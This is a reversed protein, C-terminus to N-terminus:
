GHTTQCQSSRLLLNELGISPCVRTDGDPHVRGLVKQALHFIQFSGNNETLRKTCLYVIAVHTPDPTPTAPMAMQWQWQWRDDEAYHRNFDSEFMLENEGM